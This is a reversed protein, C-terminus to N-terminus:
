HGRVLRRQWAANAVAAVVWPDAVRFLPASTRGSVQLAIGERFFEFGILQAYACEVSGQKGRFVVRRNTVTLTGADAARSGRPLGPIRTGQGVHTVRLGVTLPMSWGDSGSGAAGRGDMLTASTELHAVEGGKLRLSRSRVTPPRGANAQATVFREALGRESRFVATRDIKLLRATEDLQREEDASLLGDALAEDMLFKLAAGARQRHWSTGLSAPEIGALVASEAAPLPRGPELATLAGLYRARLKEEAEHGAARHRRCVTRGLLRDMASLPEGGVRCTASAM